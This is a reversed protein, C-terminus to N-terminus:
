KAKRKMSISRSKKHKSSTGTVSRVGARGRDYSSVYTDSQSIAQSNSKKVKRPSTAKKKDKSFIRKVEVVEEHFYKHQLVKTISEIRQQPKPHLLRAVLDAALDGAHDRIEERIAQRLIIHSIM